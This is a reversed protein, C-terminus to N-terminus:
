NERYPTMLYDDPAFGEVSWGSLVGDLTTVPWWMLGDDGCVPNGTILFDTGSSMSGVQEGEPASRVRLDRRPDGEQIPVAVYARMGANLRSPPAEPCTLTTPTTSVPVALTPLATPAPGSLWPSWAPALDISDNNTLNYMSSGDANMIYIEYNGDRNTDFVIQRGDPSWDPHGDNAGNNTVNTPNAGNADMVYIDENGERRSVFAIQIGDPSWAPTIDDSSNQTINVPNTGDADMVYIELDGNRDSTFAIMSSDPSWTPATDSALNNSINTLNTGDIDMVYVESNGSRESVFAIRTGDPSVEPWYNNSPDDTVLRASHEFVGMLFLGVSNNGRNSAYDYYSEFVLHQGDPTWEPLLGFGTSNSLLIVNSGDTNMIYLQDTRDRTSAFAILTHREDPDDEQQGKVVPLVIVAGTVM